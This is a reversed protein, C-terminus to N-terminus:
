SGSAGSKGLYLHPHLAVIETSIAKSACPAVAHSSIVSEGDMLWAGLVLMSGDSMGLSNGDPDLFGEAEGDNAGEDLGWDGFGDGEGEIEGIERDGVGFGVKPVGVAEGCGVAGDAVGVSDGCGVGDGDLLGDIFDNAM